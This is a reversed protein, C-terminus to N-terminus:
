PEAGSEFSLDEYIADVDLSIGPPDLRMTGSRVLRSLFTGEGQREHHIILREDQSVFLYHQIEPVQMYIKFKRGLDDHQSGPSAIEVVIVPRIANPTSLDLPGCDVVVDPILYSQGIEISLSDVFSRCPGGRVADRCAGGVNNKLLSHAKSGPAMLKPVGDIFEWRDPQDAHWRHFAELTKPWEPRPQQMM